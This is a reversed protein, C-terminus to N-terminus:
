TWCDSGPHVELACLRVFALAAAEWGATPGIVAWPAALCRLHGLPAADPSSILYCPWPSVYLNRCRALWFACSMLSGWYGPGACLTAIRPLWLFFSWVILKRCSGGSSGTPDFFFPRRPTVAHSSGLRYRQQSKNGTSGTDMWLDTDSIPPSAALSRLGILGVEDTVSLGIAREPDVRGLRHAM